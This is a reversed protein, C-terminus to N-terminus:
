HNSQGEADDDIIIGTWSGVCHVGESDFAQEVSSSEVDGDFKM